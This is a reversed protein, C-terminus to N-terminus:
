RDARRWALITKGSLWSLDNAAVTSTNICSNKGPWVWVVKTPGTMNIKDPTFWGHGIETCGHEDVAVKRGDSKGALKERVEERVMQRSRFRECISSPLVTACYMTSGPSRCVSDSDFYVCMSCQPTNAPVPDAKPSDTEPVGENGGFALPRAFVTANQFIPKVELAAVRSELHTVRELLGTVADKPQPARGSSGGCLAAVGEMEKAEAADKDMREDYVGELLDAVRDRLKGIEAVIDTAETCPPLRANIAGQADFLAIECETMTKLDRRRLFGHVTRRAEMRRKPDPMAITRTAM